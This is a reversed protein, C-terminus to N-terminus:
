RGGRQHARVDHRFDRNYRRELLQKAGPLDEFDAHRDIWVWTEERAGPLDRLFADPRAPFAWGPPADPHSNVISVLERIAEESWAKVGLLEVIRWVPEGRRWYRSARRVIPAVARLQEATAAQEPAAPTGKV